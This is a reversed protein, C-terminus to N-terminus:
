EYVGANASTTGGGGIEVMDLVTPLATGSGLCFYNVYGPPNISDAIALIDYTPALAIGGPITGFPIGGSPTEFTGVSTPPATGAGPRFMEAGYAADDSVDFAAYIAGTLPNLAATVCDETTPLSAIFSM